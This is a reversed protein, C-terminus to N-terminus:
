TAGKKIDHGVHLGVVSNPNERDNGQATKMRLFLKYEHAKRNEDALYKDVAERLLEGVDRNTAHALACLDMHAQPSVKARLDKLEESV